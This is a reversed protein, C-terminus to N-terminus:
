ICWMFLITWICLSKKNLDMYSTGYYQPKKAHQMNQLFTTFIYLKNRPCTM